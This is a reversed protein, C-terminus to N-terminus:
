KSRFRDVFRRHIDTARTLRLKFLLTGVTRDVQVRKLRFPDDGSIITGETISFGAEYGAAAIANESEPSRAGFPYAFFHPRRGLEREFDSIPGEVENRLAEASLSPLPLHRRGHAEFSINGAAVLRVEDWSLRATQYPDTRSSMDTPLFVTATLEYKKLLPSVTDIIDRYGDDFTIAIAKNPLDKEGRAYRVVDVLPVVERSRALYALQQEFVEPAVTLKSGSHDIAHYMLVVVEKMPRVAQAICRLIYAFMYSLVKVNGRLRQAYQRTAEKMFVWQAYLKYLEYRWPTLAHSPHNLRLFVLKILQKAINRIPEVTIRAMYEMINKPPREELMIRIRHDVKEKYVKFDLQVDLPVHWCGHLTGAKFRGEDFAIREHVKRVYRAGSRINFFRHQYYPKFSAYVTKLDESVIRYPVRYVYHDIQSRNAIHRIESVLEPTVLEDSDLSLFWDNSAAEILRNRELAFDTIPMGPNSQEIVKCGHREAIARTEDTSGGDAILIEGFDKLGELCRDLTDASNYTLIGVTCAIKENASRM